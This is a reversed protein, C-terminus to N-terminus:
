NNIEFRDRFSSLTVLSCIQVCFPLPISMLDSACGLIVKPNETQDNFIKFRMYYKAAKYM